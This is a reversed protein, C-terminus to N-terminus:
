DGPLAAVSGELPHDAAAKFEEEGVEQRFFDVIDKFKAARRVEEMSEAVEPRARAVDDPSVGHM